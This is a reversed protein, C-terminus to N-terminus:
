ANGELDFASQENGFIVDLDDVGLVDALVTAQRAEIILISVTLSIADISEYQDVLASHTAVASQEFAHASAAFDDVFGQVQAEFLADNREGNSSLGAAGAIAQAYAQHNEAMVGIVLALDEPDDGTELRALYLDVAALEMAMAQRMLETDARTPQNPREDVAAARATAGSLLSAAAGTLGALGAMAILHRRGVAADAVPEANELDVHSPGKPTLRSDAAWPPRGARSELATHASFVPKTPEHIPVAVPEFTGHAPVSM